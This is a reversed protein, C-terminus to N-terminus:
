FAPNERNRRAVCVGNLRTSSARFYRRPKATPVGTAWRGGCLDTRATNGCVAGVEPTQRRLAEGAGRGRARVAARRAEPRGDEMTLAHADTETASDFRVRRLLERLSDRLAPAAALVGDLAAAFPQIGREALLYLSWVNANTEYSTAFGPWDVEVVAQIGHMDR